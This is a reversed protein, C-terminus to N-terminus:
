GSPPKGITGDEGDLHMKKAIWRDAKSPYPIKVLIQFRSKDDKLDLGTHLSPSILVSGNNSELWHQAIIEDRPIEPNTSILRRKNEKSLFHRIFEVQKYSTTHIIGKENAHMNMIEDVAAAIMRQIGPVQLAVYNLHAVNLPYIPRNEIPFDSGVEIFQVQNRDLGINRCFTDIDLITASTIFTTSCHTLLDVCYPAVNLPKFVVKSIKREKYDAVTIQRQGLNRAEDNSYVIESVVWNNPDARIANVTHGIRQQYQEADIQVEDSTIQPITDDLVAYIKDLLELWQHMSTDYGCTSSELLEANDHGAFKRLAKTSISIGIDDAIQNEIQHGEDLILLNRPDLKNGHLFILFNAYNFITHSALMGKNVQDFYGCPTFTARNRIAAPSTINLLHM